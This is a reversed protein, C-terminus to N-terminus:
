QGRPHWHGIIRPLHPPSRAARPDVVLQGAEPALWEEEEIRRANLMGGAMPLPPPPKADHSGLWGVPAPAGEKSALVWVKRQAVPDGFESCVRGDEAASWGINRFFKLVDAVTPGPPVDVLAWQAALRHLEQAFDQLHPGVRSPGLSTVVLTLDSESGAGGARCSPWGELLEAEGCAGLVGAARARPAM